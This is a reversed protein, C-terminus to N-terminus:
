PFLINLCSFMSHIINLHSFMSHIVHGLCDRIWHRNLLKGLIVGQEETVDVGEQLYVTDGALISFDPYKQNNNSVIHSWVRQDRYQRANMCSALVYDFKSSSEPLPATTFQGQGVRQGQLHMGYKYLTSPRLGNLTHVFVGQDLKRTDQQIFEVALVTDYEDYLVLEMKDYSSAHYAWLMASNHTTHGVLPGM